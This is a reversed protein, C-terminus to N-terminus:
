ARERTTAGLVQDMVDAADPEVLELAACFSRDARALAVLACFGPDSALVRWRQSLASDPPRAEGEEFSSGGGYQSQRGTSNDLVPLGIRGLLDRRYDADGTWRDFSVPIVGDPPRAALEVMRRYAGLAGAVRVPGDAGRPTGAERVVVLHYFSALWNAFSRHIVINRWHTDSAYGRTLSGLRDPPPQDEYSVVHAAWTDRRTKLLEARKGRRRFPTGRRVDGLEIYQFSDLPDGPRCDNLFLSDVGLNRRMWDIVAHNGSRRMGFVRLHTAQSPIPPVSQELAM